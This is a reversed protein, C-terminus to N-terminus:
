KRSVENVYRELSKNTHSNPNLIDRLRYETLRLVVKAPANKCFDVTFTDVFFVMNRWRFFDGPQKAEEDIRKIVWWAANYITRRVKEKIKGRNM